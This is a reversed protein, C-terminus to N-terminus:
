TSDGQGNIRESRHINITNYDNPWVLHTQSKLRTEVHISHPYNLHQSRSMMSNVILRQRASVTIISHQCKRWPTNVSVHEVPSVWVITHQCECHFASVLINCHWCESSPTNVSMHPLTSVYMICMICQRHGDSTPM